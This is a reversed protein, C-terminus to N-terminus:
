IKEETMTKKSFIQTVERLRDSNGRGSRIIAFKDWETGLLYTGKAYKDADILQPPLTVFPNDLVVCNVQYFTNTENGNDYQIRKDVYVIFNSIETVKKMKM